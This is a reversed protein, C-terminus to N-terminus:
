SRRRSRTSPGGPRDRHAPRGRDDGAHRRDAHGDLQLQQQAPRLVAVGAHGRDDARVPGAPRDRGHHRQDQGPVRRLKRQRELDPCRDHAHRRDGDRRGRRRHVRRLRRHRDRRRHERQRRPGGRGGRHVGRADTGTPTNVRVSGGAVNTPGTYTNAGSLTLIGGGLATLGGDTTGGTGNLLPQAVSMTTGSPSNFIAGGALVNAATLNSITGNTVSSQLVGGNFNVTSGAALPGATFGATVLTGSNRSGSGLNYTGVGQNGVTTLYNATYFTGGTQNVIGVGNFGDGVVAGQTSNYTGGTLNLVGTSAEGISTQLTNVAGASVNMTTTASSGVGVEIIGASANSPSIANVVGGAVNVAATANTGIGVILGPTVFTGGTFTMLGTSGNNVGVLTNYQASTSTTTGGSQQYTGLGASGVVLQVTNVAGGSM